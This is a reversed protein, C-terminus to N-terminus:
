SCSKKAEVFVLTVVKVLILAIGKRQRVKVFHIKIKRDLVRGLGELDKVIEGAYFNQDKVTGPVAAEREGIFVVSSHIAPGQDVFLPAYRSRM